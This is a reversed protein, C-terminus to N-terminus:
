NLSTQVHLRPKFARASWLFIVTNVWQSSLHLPTNGYYDKAHVDAGAQETLYQTIDLHGSRCFHICIVFNINTFLSSIGHPLLYSLPLTSSPLWTESDIDCLESLTASIITTKDPPNRYSMTLTLSTVKSTITNAGLNLRVLVPTVNTAVGKLM